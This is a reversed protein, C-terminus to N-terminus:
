GDRLLPMPNIKIILMWTLQSVRVRLPIMWNVQVLRLEGMLMRFLMTASALRVGAEGWQTLLVDLCLLSGEVAAGLGVVVAVLVVSAEGLGLIGILKSSIVGGSNTKKTNEQEVNWTPIDLSAVRGASGLCKKM